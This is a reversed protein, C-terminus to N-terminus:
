EENQSRAEWLVWVKGACGFSEGKIEGLISIEATSILGYSHYDSSAIGIDTIKKSAWVFVDGHFGVRNAEQQFYAQGQLRAEDVHQAESPNLYFLLLLSLLVSSIALNKMPFM